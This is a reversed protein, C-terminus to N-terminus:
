PCALVGVTNTGRYLKGASDICAPATGSGSLVSITFDQGVTLSNDTTVDPQIEMTGGLSPMTFAYTQSTLTLSKNNADYNIVDFGSKYDNVRFQPQYGAGVGIIATGRDEPSSGYDAGNLAIFAGTSADAGGGIAIQGPQSGGTQAFIATGSTPYFIQSADASITFNDSAFAISGDANFTNIGGSLYTIGNVNLDTGVTMTTGSSVGNTAILNVAKFNNNTTLNSNASDWWLSDPQAGNRWTIVGKATNTMRLAGLTMSLFNSDASGGGGSPAFAKHLQGSSNTVIFTDAGATALATVTLGGANPFSANIVSGAFNQINVNGTNGTPRIFLSNAANLLVSNTGLQYGNASNSNVTGSFTGTAGTINGATFYNAATDTGASKLHGSLILSVGTAAKINPTNTCGLKAAASDYFICGSTGTGGKNLSITPTTGGSSVIPATGNVSTIIGTDSSFYTRMQAASSHYVKVPSYPYRQWSFLTSDTITSDPYASPPGVFQAQGLSVLLLALVLLKKM